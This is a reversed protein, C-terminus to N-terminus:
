KIEQAAKAYAAAREKNHRAKVSLFVAVGIGIVFAALLAISVWQDANSAADTIAAGSGTAVTGKATKSQKSASSVAKDAEVNLESKQDAAPLHALTMAVAKAEIDAIRRSWGKGFVKWTKLGRVFSMRSACIKQVTDKAPGGVSALLAKRARAPGSNVGYDWTALDVGVTLTDGGVADWYNAKYIALMEDKTMQFVSRKALGKSVRWADYTAQTIGWRTKGGPDDPHDVDGGEWKLTIALCNEYNSKM